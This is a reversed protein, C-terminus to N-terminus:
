YLIKDISSSNDGGIVRLRDNMTFVIDGLWQNIVVM